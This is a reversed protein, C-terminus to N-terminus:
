LLLKFCKWRVILSWVELRCCESVFFPLWLWSLFFQVFVYDSDRSFCLGIVSVKQFSRSEPPSFYHSFSFFLLPAPLIFRCTLSIIWMLLPFPLQIMAAHLGCPHFWRNQSQMETKSWVIGFNSSLKIKCHCKISAANPCCHLLFHYIYLSFRQSLFFTFSLVSFLDPSPPLM